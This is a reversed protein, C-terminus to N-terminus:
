VLKLKLKCTNNDYSEVVYTDGVSGKDVEIQFYIQNKFITKDFRERRQFGNEDTGIHVNFENSLLIHELTLKKLENKELPVFKCDDYHPNFIKFMTNNHFVENKIFIEDIVVILGNNTKLLNNNFTVIKGIERIM